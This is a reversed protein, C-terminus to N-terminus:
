PGCLLSPLQRCDGAVQVCALVEEKRKSPCRSALAKEIETPRFPRNEKAFTALTKERVNVLPRCVRLDKAAVFYNAKLGSLADKGKWDLDKQAIMRM